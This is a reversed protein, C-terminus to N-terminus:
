LVAGHKTSHRLDNRKKLASFAGPTYARLKTDRALRRDYKHAKIAWILRSWRSHGSIRTISSSAASICYLPNLLQLICMLPVAIDQMRPQATVHRLAWLSFALHGRTRWPPEWGQYRLGSWEATSGCLLSAETSKCGCDSLLAWVLFKGVLFCAIRAANWSAVM